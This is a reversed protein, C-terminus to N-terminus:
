PLLNEPIWGFDFGGTRVFSDSSRALHLNPIIENALRDRLLFKEERNMALLEDRTKNTIGSRLPIGRAIAFANFGNTGDRQNSFFSDDGVRAGIASRFLQFINETEDLELVAMMGHLESLLLDLEIRSVYVMRQSYSPRGPLQAAVWGSAFRPQDAAVSQLDIGAHALLQALRYKRVREGQTTTQQFEAISQGQRLAVLDQQNLRHEDREIAFATQIESIVQTTDAFAYLKGGTATAIQSCQQRHLQQEADGGAGEICVAHITIGRKRAEEIVDSQRVEMNRPSGYEHYSNDGIWIITPLSGPPFRTDKIAALLGQLGCEAADDSGVVPAELSRVFPLFETASLVNGEQISRTVKGGPFMLGEVRDRYLTMSFRVDDSQLSNVVFSLFDIIGKLFPTTSQTNDVCFVVSMLRVTDPLDPKLVSVDALKSGHVGIIALHQIEVQQGRSNTIVASEIVPWPAYDLNAPLVGIPQEDTHGDRALETAASKGTYIPLSQRIRDGIRTKWPQVVESGLYGITDAARPTRSVQYWKPADREPGMSMVFLESFLPLVPGVLTQGNPNDTCRLDDLRTVVKLRLGDVMECEIGPLPRPAGPGSLHPLSGQPGNQRSAFRDWLPEIKNWNLAIVLVTLGIFVLYRM